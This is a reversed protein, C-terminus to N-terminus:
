KILYIHRPASVLNDGQGSHMLRDMVDLIRLWLDLIGDWRSLRELYHLFIKCLLNAAQVRTEGMGIPDSQYIEPKLLRAILPFLVESFIAIWERHDASTLQQALLLRQLSSFAQQRIERCPNLCQRRLAHFIPSWYTIWALCILSIEAILM